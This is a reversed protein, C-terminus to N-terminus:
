CCAKDGKRGKSEEQEERPREENVQRNIEKALETLKEDTEKEEGLTEDLL